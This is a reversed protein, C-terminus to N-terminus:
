SVEVTLVAIRICPRSSLLTLVSFVLCSEIYMGSFFGPILHCCFILLLLMSTIVPVVPQSQVPCSCLLSFFLSQMTAVSHCGYPLRGAPLAFVVQLLVTSFCLLSSPHFLQSSTWPGAASLALKFVLTTAKHAEHCLSCKM